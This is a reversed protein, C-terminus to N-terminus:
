YYLSRAIRLQESKKQKFIENFNTFNYASKDVLQREVDVGAAKKRLNYEIRTMPGMFDTEKLNRLDEELIKNLRIMKLHRRQSEVSTFYRPAIDRYTGDTGWELFIVAGGSTDFYELDFEYVGESIAACVRRRSHVGDNDVRLTNNLYLKSGDSSTVCVETVVSDAYLYGKFLAAVNGALGSTAFEGPNGKYAISYTTDTAYPTLSSLGALPLSTWGDLDYYSININRDRGEEMEEEFENRRQDILSEAVAMDPNFYQSYSNMYFDDNSEFPKQNPFFPPYALHYGMLHEYSIPDTPTDVGLEDQHGRLIDVLDTAVQDGRDEYKEILRNIENWMENKLEFSFTYAEIDFDIKDLFTIIGKKEIILERWICEWAEEEILWEGFGETGDIVEALKRAEAPGDDLDTLKDPDLALVPQCGKSVTACMPDYAPIITDTASVFRGHRSELKTFHNPMIAMQWHEPVTLEHNFMDRMLGGEMYYDIFWSYWHIEAFSVAYLTAFM